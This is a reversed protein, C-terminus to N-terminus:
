AGEEWRPITNGPRRDRVVREGSPGSDLSSSLLSGDGVTERNHARDGMTDGGVTQRGNGDVDTGREIAITATIMAYNAVDAAELLIEVTNNGQIADILEVAEGMLLGHAKAIPLNEWRGKKSHVGLKYVMADVFRRIDHEYPEVEDPITITIIKSM